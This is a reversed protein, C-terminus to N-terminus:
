DGNGHTATPQPMATPTPPATATPPHTPSSPQSPGSPPSTLSGHSQALLVALERGAGFFLLFAVVGALVWRGIRHSDPAEARQPLPWPPAVGAKQAILNPQTPEDHLM